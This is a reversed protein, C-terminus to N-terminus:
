FNYKIEDLSKMMHNFAPQIDIEVAIKRIKKTQRERLNPSLPNLLDNKRKLSISFLANIHDAPIYGKRKFTAIKENQMDMGKVSIEIALEFFQNIWAEPNTKYDGLLMYKKKREEDNISLTKQQKLEEFQNLNYIVLEKLLANTASREGIMSFRSTLRQIQEAISSIDEESLLKKSILKIEENTKEVLNDIEQLKNDIHEKFVESVGINEGNSIPPSQIIVVNAIDKSIENRLIKDLTKKIKIKSDMIEKEKARIKTIGSQVIKKGFIKRLNNPIAAEKKTIKKPKKIDNKTVITQTDLTANQDIPLQHTSPDLVTERSTVYGPDGESPIIQTKLTASPDNPSQHTSPDLVTERNTIYDPQLKADFVTEQSMIANPLLNPDDLTAEPDVYTVENSFTMNIPPSHLADTVMWQYPNMDGVMEYPKEPFLSDRSFNETEIVLNDDQAENAIEKRKELNKYDINEPHKNPKPKSKKRERSLIEQHTENLKAIEDLLAQERKEKIKKGELWNELNKNPKPKSKKREEALEKYLTEIEDNKRILMTKTENLLPSSSTIHTQARLNSLRPCHPTDM